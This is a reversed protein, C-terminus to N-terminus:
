EGPEDHSEEVHQGHPHDPVLIWPSAEMVVRRRFIQASHPHEPDQEAHMKQAKARELSRTVEPEDGNDWVIRFQDYEKRQSTTVAAERRREQLMEQYHKQDKRSRDIHHARKLEQEYDTPM